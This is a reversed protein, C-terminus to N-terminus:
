RADCRVQQELGPEHTGVFRAQLSDADVEYASIKTTMAAKGTASDLIYTIVMEQRGPKVGSATAALLDEYPPLTSFTQQLTHENLLKLTTAYVTFPWPVPTEVDPVGTADSPFCVGFVAKTSRRVGYQLPVSLLRTPKGKVTCV